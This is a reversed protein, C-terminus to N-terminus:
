TTQSFIVKLVVFVNPFVYATAFEFFDLIKGLLSVKECLAEYLLTKKTERFHSVSRNRQHALCSISYTKYKQSNHALFNLANKDADLENMESTKQM